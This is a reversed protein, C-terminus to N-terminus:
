GSSSEWAHSLVSKSPEEMSVQSPSAKAQGQHCSPSPNLGANRYMASMLLIPVDSGGQLERVKEIVQIGTMGPLMVDVVLLDPEHRTYMEVGQPGTAAILATHGNKDVIDKVQSAFIRDDEVILIRNGM